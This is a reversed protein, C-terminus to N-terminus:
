SRWRPKSLLPFMQFCLQKRRYWYGWNNLWQSKRERSSIVSATIFAAPFEFFRLLICRDLSHCICLKEMGLSGWIEWSMECPGCFWLLGCDLRFWYPTIEGFIPSSRLEVPCSIADMLAYGGQYVAPTDCSPTVLNDWCSRCVLRYSVPFHILKSKPAAVSRVM